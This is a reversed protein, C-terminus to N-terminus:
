KATGAELIAVKVINDTRDRKYKIIGYIFGGIIFITVSSASLCLILLFTHDDNLMQKFTEFSASPFKIYNLTYNYYTINSTTNTINPTVV